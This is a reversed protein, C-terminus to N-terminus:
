KVYIVRCGAIWQIDGRKGVRIDWFREELKFRRLRIVHKRTYVLNVRDLSLHAAGSVRQEDMLYALVACAADPNTSLSGRAEINADSMDSALEDIVVQYRIGGEVSGAHRLITNIFDAHMRLDRRTRYYESPVFRSRTQVQDFRTGVVIEMTCRNKFRHDM